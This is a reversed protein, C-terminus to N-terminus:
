TVHGRGCTVNYSLVHARVVWERKGCCIDCTDDRIGLCSLESPSTVHKHWTNTHLIVHFEVADNIQNFM